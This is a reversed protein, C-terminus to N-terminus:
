TCLTHWLLRTLVGFIAHVNGFDHPNGFALVNLADFIAHVNSFALVNIIGYPMYM